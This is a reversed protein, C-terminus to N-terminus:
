TRPRESLTVPRHSIAGRASGQGPNKPSGPLGRDPTVYIIRPGGTWRRPPPLATDSLSFDSVMTVWRSRVMFAGRRACSSVRPYRGSEQKDGPLDTADTSHCFGSRIGRLLPIEEPAPPWQIPGQFARSDRDCSTWEERSNSELAMTNTSGSSRGLGELGGVRTRAVKPPAVGPSFLDRLVEMTKEARNLISFSPFDRSVFAHLRSPGPDDRRM